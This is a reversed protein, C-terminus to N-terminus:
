REERRLRSGVVVEAGPGGGRVEFILDEGYHLLCRAYTNALGMGGIEMELLAGPGDLRQRVEAFRARIRAFSEESFGCGNDRVAIVWRDPFARGTVTKIHLKM